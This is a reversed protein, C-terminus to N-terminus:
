DTRLGCEEQNRGRLNSANCTHGGAGPESDTNKTLARHSRYVFYFKLFVTM